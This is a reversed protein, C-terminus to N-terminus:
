RINSNNFMKRYRKVAAEYNYNTDILKRANKTIENLNQSNLARIVNEAIGEPSNDGIIFGTKGDKIVDPIGGVPTALVPTGCAMAELVITPLGECYSPLILLKLKNLYKTFENRPIWGTLKVKDHLSKSELYENIKPSLPGNGGVLFEVNENAKLILPIAKVFNMVGKSENLRGIYGVLNKRNRLNNEVKLFNIDMYRAGEDLVKKGYKSLGLFDKASRSEVVIRDALHFIVDEILLLHFPKKYGRSPDIASVVINKKLIKAMLVIFLLNAGGQFFFITEIKKSIKILFYCIKMQIIIIKIAQLIASWWDPHITQRLHMTIKTDMLQIEEDKEGYINEPLGGTIVYLKSCIPKFIEILNTLQANIVPKSPMPFSVICIKHPLEKERKM